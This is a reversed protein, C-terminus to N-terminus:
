ISHKFYHQLQQQLNQPLLATISKAIVMSDRAVGLISLQFLATFNQPLKSYFYATIVAKLKLEGHKQTSFNTTSKCNM